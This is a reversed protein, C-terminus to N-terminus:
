RNLHLIILRLKTQSKVAVYWAGNTVISQVFDNLIKAFSDARNEVIKLCLELRQLANM